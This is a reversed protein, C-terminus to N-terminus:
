QRRALTSEDAKRFGTGVNEDKLLMVSLELVFGSRPVLM